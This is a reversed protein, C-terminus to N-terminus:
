VYGLEPNIMSEYKEKLIEMTTENLSKKMMNPPIRVVDDM